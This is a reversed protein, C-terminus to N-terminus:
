DAQLCSLSWQSQLGARATLVHLSSSSEMHDTFLIGEQAPTPLTEDQLECGQMTTDSRDSILPVAQSTTATTAGKVWGEAASCASNVEKHRTQFWIFRFSKATAMTQAKRATTAGKVTWM